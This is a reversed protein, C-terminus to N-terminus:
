TPPALIVYEEVHFLEHAHFFDLAGSTIRARIARRSAEYGDWDTWRLEAYGDWPLGPAREGDLMHLAYRELHPQKVVAPAHDFEWEHFFQARPMTPAAGVLGIRKVSATASPALARIVVERTWLTVITAASPWSQAPTAAAAVHEDLWYEVIINFSADPSRVPDVWNWVLGLLSPSPTDDDSTAARVMDHFDEKSIAHPTRLFDTRKTAV